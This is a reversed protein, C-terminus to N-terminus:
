KREYANKWLREFVELYLNFLGHQTGENKIVFVPCEQGRFGPLYNQLIIYHNDIIYFNLNSFKDYLKYHFKGIDKVQAFIEETISINTNTVNIIPNRTSNPYEDKERNKISEGEPDLFLLCFEKFKEEKVKEVIDRIGWNIIAENLSIGLGKISVANKFLKQHGISNNFSTRDRFVCATDLYRILRKSPFKNNLLDYELQSNINNGSIQKKINNCAPGFTAKLNGDSRASNYTLPTLGFLDSPLHFNNNDKPIVFFCNERGLKGIFLGLEFVVNDRAVSYETNRITSLDDPSLVFLGYDFFELAEQLSEMTYSSPKFIDQDWITVEAWHDLNEQIAYAYDLSEKSSGIFIKKKM